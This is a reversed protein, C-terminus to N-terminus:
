DPLETITVSSRPTYPLAKYRDKYPYAARYEIRQPYVVPGKPTNNRHRWLMAILFCVSGFMRSITDLVSTFIPTTVKIINSLERILKLAFDMLFMLIQGSGSIIASLLLFMFITVDKLNSWSILPDTPTQLEENMLSQHSNLSNSLNRINSLDFSNESSARSIARNDVTNITKLKLSIENDLFNLGKVLFKYTGFIQEDIDVWLNFGVPAGPTNPFTIGIWKSGNFFRELRRKAVSLNEIFMDETNPIQVIKKYRGLEDVYRQEIFHGVFVHNRLIQKAFRQVAEKNLVSDSDNAALKVM